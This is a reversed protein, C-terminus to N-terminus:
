RYIEGTSILGLRHSNSHTTGHGGHYVNIVRRLGFIGLVVTPIGVGLGVALSIIDSTSLGSKSSSSPSSTGGTINGGTSDTSNGNSGGASSSSPSSSTATQTAIVSASSGSASKTASTALDAVPGVSITSTATPTGPNIKGADDEQACTLMIAAIDGSYRTVCNTGTRYWDMSGLQTSCVTDSYGLLQVNGNSCPVAAHAISGLGITVICKSISISATAHETSAVQCQNDTYFSLQVQLQALSASLHHFLLLSSLPLRWRALHSPLM